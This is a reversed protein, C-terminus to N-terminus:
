HGFGEAQHAQSQALGVKIVRSQVFTGKSVYGCKVNLAKSEGGKRLGM